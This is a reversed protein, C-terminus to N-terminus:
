YRTWAEVPIGNVFRERVQSLTDAHGAAELGYDRLDPIRNVNDISVAGPVLTQDVRLLRARGALSNALESTGQAQAYMLLSIIRTKRAWGALGSTLTERGSYPESTTGISLIDIHNVPVRLRAVAEVLAAMTPNNAWVGGDVYFKGNVEAARFYTPAAATAVAVETAALNADAIVDPHHNTRFLHVAGSRAHCAPIVLRCQSDRLTKGPAGVFARELERRLVDQPFKPQFVARVGYRLKGGLSTVPFIVAGRAEYFELIEGARLGMGLGLALIGGTSTGAILDFHDTLQCGTVREWEALVAATFTGKIGGGDLALIRFTAGGLAEGRVLPLLCLQTVVLDALRQVDRETAIERNKAEDLGNKLGRLVEPYQNLYGAAAGGFGALLFSPLGCERALELEFPIGAGGPNEQWWKGGVIVVADCRDATWRRLRKISESRANEGTIEPVEQAISHQRWEDLRINYQEPSKSYFRSVALTLCDRAGGAAQFAEARELLIPWITPHSGHIISGGARFLKDTMQAIFAKMSDQDAEDPISGSLWVRAGRLPAVPHDTM